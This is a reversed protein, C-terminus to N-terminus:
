RDGLLEKLLNNELISLDEKSVLQLTYNIVIKQKGNFREYITMLGPPFTCPPYNIVNKVPQGFFTKFDNEGPDSYLFSAISGGAPGKILWYYFDSPLRRLLGSMVAYDDPHKHRILDFMQNTIFEVCSKLNLTKERPIRYFMFSQLNSVVPGYRGRPRRNQPIPIWFTGIKNGKAILWENIVKTTCALFFSGKSVKAGNELARKDLQLTQEETLELVRYLSTPIYDPKESVLHVLPKKSSKKIFEKSFHLTYLRKFINLKKEKDPFFKVKDESLDGGLLKMLTEAGRADMLIHHWSFVLDTDGNGKHVITFKFLCPDKLFIGEHVVELPLGQDPSTIENVPINVIKKSNYEWKPIDFPFNKKLEIKSLWDLIPLSSIKEIISEKSIKQSTSILLHCVNGSRGNKEYQKEMALFFCDASSLPIQKPFVAPESNM